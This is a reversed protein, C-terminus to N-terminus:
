YVPYMGWFFSESYERDPVRDMERDNRVKEPAQQEAPEPEAKPTARRTLGFLDFGFLSFGGGIM